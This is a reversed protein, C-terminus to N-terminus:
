PFRKMIHFALREGQITDVIQGPKKKKKGLKTIYGCQHDDVLPILWIQSCTLSSLLFNLVNVVNQWGTPV